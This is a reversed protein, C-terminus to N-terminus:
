RSLRRFEEINLADKELVPTLKEAEAAFSQLLQSTRQFQEVFRKHEQDRWTGGLRQLQQAISMQTTKTQQAFRKLQQAFSRLKEPDVHVQSM